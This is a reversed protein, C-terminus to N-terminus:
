APQAAIQGPREDDGHAASCVRTATWGRTCSRSGFLFSATLIRTRGAGPGTSGLVGDSFMETWVALGRRPRTGGARRRPGHRHGGAPHRRGCAPPSGNGSARAADDPAAPAARGATRGGRARPRGDPDLARRRVDVADAPEGARRRSRRAGPVGRHRGAAREGRHGALGPRRPRPWPSACSTRRCRRRSCDRCWRCGPPYTPWRRAAGCGPGSSRRRTCWGEPRPDRAAREAHVAPLRSARMWWRLLQRPTAGNGSAVIRPDPPLAAFLRGLEEETVTRVRWTYCSDSCPPPWRGGQPVRPRVSRSASASTPLRVGRAGEEALRVTEYGFTSFTTLAGRLGHRGALSWGAAPAAVRRGGGRACRAVVNVTFTGWPFGTAHRSQVVPRDPLAGARGGGGRSSWCPIMRRVLRAATLGLWAAM